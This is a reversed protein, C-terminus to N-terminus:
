MLILRVIAQTIVLAYIGAILDDIVIGLGGGISQMERAPPPQSRWPLAILALAQGAVEDIVVSQPDKRGFEKEADRGYKLCVVTAVVCLILLAMNITVLRLTTWADSGLLWVLLLAIVVTPLSGWTGPAPRLRGVGFCTVLLGGLRSSSV